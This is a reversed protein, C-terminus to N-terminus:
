APGGDRDPRSYGQSRRHHHEQLEVGTVHDRVAQTYLTELKNRDGESLYDSYAGFVAEFELATKAGEKSLVDQMAPDFAETVASFDDFDDFNKIIGATFLEFVHQQDSGFVEGSQFIEEERQLFHALRQVRLHFQDPESASARKATDTLSM